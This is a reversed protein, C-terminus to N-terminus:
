VIKKGIYGGSNGILSEVTYAQHYVIKKYFDDTFKIDYIVRKTTFFGDTGLEKEEGHWEYMSRLGICPPDPTKKPYNIMNYFNLFSEKTRCLKAEPDQKIFIPKCKFKDIANQILAEDYNGEICPYVRKNRRSLVELNALYFKRRYRKVEENYKSTWGSSTSLSKGIQHPYHFSISAKSEQSPNFIMKSKNNKVNLFLDPKFYLQFEEIKENPIYPLNFSYCKELKQRKSVYIEPYRIKAIADKELDEKGDQIKDIGWVKDNMGKNLGRDMLIAEVMVLSGNIINWNIRGNSKLMVSITKLNGELGKSVKDYDIQFYDELKLKTIEFCEKDFTKGELLNVYNMRIKGARTSLWEGPRKTQNFPGFKGAGKKGFKKYFNNWCKETLNTSAELNSAGFVDMWYKPELIPNKICMSISPYIHDKSDHFDHYEVQSVDEDVYYIRVCRGVLILAVGFCVAHFLAISSKQM